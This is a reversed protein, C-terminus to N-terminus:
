AARVCPQKRDLDQFDFRQYIRKLEADHNWHGILKTVIKDADAFDISHLTGSRILKIKTVSLDTLGALVGSHGLLIGAAPGLTVRPDPRDKAWTEILRRIPAAPIQSSSM